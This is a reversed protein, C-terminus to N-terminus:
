LGVSRTLLYLGLSITGSAGLVLKLDGAAM